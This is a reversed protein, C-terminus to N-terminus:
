KKGPKIKKLFSEPDAKVRPHAGTTSPHDAKSVKTDNSGKVRRSNFHLNLESM